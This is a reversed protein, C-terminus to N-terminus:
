STVFLRLPPEQPAFDILRDFRLGIKELVRASGHNETDTIAVIRSLGLQNQAWHLVAAAAESAYGRSWYEPFFAFGIDVDDLEPRKVLGCVGLQAGDKKRCVLYMGFGNDRYSAIPGDLLYQRAQAEDRVGRDGIFQIFSPENLLALMFAAHSQEDLESLELRDTELIM